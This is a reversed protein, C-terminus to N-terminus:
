KTQSAAITTRTMISHANKLAVVFCVEGGLSCRLSHNLPNSSFGTLPMSIIKQGIAKQQM